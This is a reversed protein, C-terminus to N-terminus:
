AQALDFTDTANSAPFTVDYQVFLGQFMSCYNNLFTKSQPGYTGANGYQYTSTNLEFYFTQHFAANVKVHQDDAVKIDDMLDQNQTIAPQLFGDNALSVALITTFLAIYKLM